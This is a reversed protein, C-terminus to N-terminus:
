IFFATQKEKVCTTYMERITDSDFDTLNWHFLWTASKRGIDDQVM